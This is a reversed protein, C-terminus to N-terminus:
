GIIDVATGGPEYTHSQDAPVVPLTWRYLWQAAKPSLNICGHSRPRGYNNHWYTGHFAIGDETIYSNWPVGPLDYGNAALNGRAMHRSPRKRFIERRGTPTEYNGDRFKGGTAVRAMYVPEDYEYAILVQEPLHVEVRKFLKSVQPSLPSIEEVPLIRLHPAPVYFIYEWKDDLIVYWPEGSSDHVTRIVWYTTQYYFRYAVPENSGLKWRADTFPVTVEALVGGEPIEAQVPNHMTRVPQISGSHTYGEEGVEYWVKNHSEDEPDTCLTAGTIPIVRDRWYTQVKNGLTSPTDYVTINADLVRGQMGEEVATMAGLVAAADGPHLPKAPLRSFSRDARVPNGPLFLSLALGFSLGSFKLFDARSFSQRYIPSSSQTM